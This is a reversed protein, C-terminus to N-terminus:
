DVVYLERPLTSLPALGDDSMVVTDIAAAEFGLHRDFLVTEFNSTFGPELIVPSLGDDALYTHGVWSPPFAIGLNYGGIWWINEGPIVARIAADAALMAARPSEGLTAQECLTRLGVASLELLEAARPNARGLSFTRSLNVHYRDVVASADVSVVDGTELRRTSPFAHIDAWAGPGSSVLPYQAAVESGQEALLTNIRAAVELETMGPRLDDRLATFAIDLMRGGALMREMEASSKHLRLDDVIWDGPVVTAGAAELAAHTATSVAAVPTPSFHEVAVTTGEAWGRRAFATALEVPATGYEFLELEDFLTTLAVYDDHRVWDFFVTAPEARHIAVGVPLRPPYWSAEYGTLYVLNAPSTVLLVDIGREELVARVREQRARLEDAPFALTTPVNAM